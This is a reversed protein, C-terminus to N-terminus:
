RLDRFRWLESLRYGRYSGLLILAALTFFHLEPYSLLIQGATEWNLLLYCFFAVILTGALLRLLYPNGEDEKASYVQEIILTTIVIPLLFLGGTQHITTHEIISVGLIMGLVVLTLIVSLRPLLLLDMRDLFARGILGIFVVLVLIMTGIQWGTYVFSLALLAPTFSGVTDVGVLTRFLVTLLAALPFILLIALNPQLELPLRRLNFMGALPYGEGPFLHASSLGASPHIESISIRKRLGDVGSSRVISTRGRRLVQYHHPMEGEYGNLPDFPIWEKDVFAEAWFHPVVNNTEKLEFGGILRAPIGGTRCLAIFARARGLADARGARLAEVATTGNDAERNEINHYCHKFLQTILHTKSVTESQLEDFVALVEKSKVQIGPEDALYRRHEEPNLNESPNEKSSTEENNSHIGLDVMIQYKGQQSATIKLERDQSKRSSELLAKRFRAGESPTKEGRINSKFVRCNANDPPFAIYLQSGPEESEFMLQYTLKWTREDPQSQYHRSGTFRLGLCFVATLVLLAVAWRVYRRSRLITSQGSCSLNYSMMRDGEGSNLSTLRM